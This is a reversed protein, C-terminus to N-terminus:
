KIQLPYYYSGQDQEHTASLFYAGAKFEAFRSGCINRGPSWRRTRYRKKSRTSGGKVMESCTRQMFRRNASTSRFDIPIKPRV